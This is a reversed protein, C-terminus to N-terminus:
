ENIVELGKLRKCYEEWTIEGEAFLAELEEIHSFPGPDEFDGAAWHPLLLDDVFGGQLAPAGIGRAVVGPLETVKDAFEKRCQELLRDDRGRVVVPVDDITVRVPKFIDLRALMDGAKNVVLSLFYNDNVLGAICEEDTPSWFVNLSSHSHYWCRLQGSDIGEEELTVLLAAVWDQDLETGGPTCEQRPLFVQTVLFGGDVEDVLGLGSVEGAALATFHRIRQEVEPLLLLRFKESKTNM